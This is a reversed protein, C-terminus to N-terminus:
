KHELAASAPAPEGTNVPGHWPDRCIQVEGGYQMAPHRAPDPSNCTPCRENMQGGTRNSDLQDMM